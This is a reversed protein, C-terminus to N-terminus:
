RAKPAEYALTNAHSVHRQSISSHSVRGQSAQSVGGHLISVEVDFSSASVRPKSRMARLGDQTKVM